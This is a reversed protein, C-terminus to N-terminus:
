AASGSGTRIQSDDIALAAGDWRVVAGLKASLTEIASELADEQGRDSAGAHLELLLNLATRNGHAVIAATGDYQVNPRKSRVLQAALTLPILPRRRRVEKVASGMTQGFDDDQDYRPNDPDEIALVTRDLCEQARESGLRAAVTLIRMRQTDSLDDRKSWTDLLQAWRPTAAHPPTDLLGGSGLFDMQYAYLMGFEASRAFADAEDATTVRAGILEAAREALARGPHHGFLSVAEQAILLPLTQLQEILATFARHDGHRAAHLMAVQVIEAPVASDRRCRDIVRDRTDAHPFIQTLNGALHLRYGEPISSDGLLELFLGEPDAALSVVGTAHWPRGKDNRLIERLIALEGPTLPRGALRFCNLRIDFPLRADRAAELVREPAVSGPAFHRLLGDLGSLEDETIDENDLVHMIREFAEHGAASIAPALSHYYRFRGIPRLLLRDLVSLTLAHNKARVIIEGGGHNLLRPDHLTQHLAPSIPDAFGDLILQGVRERARLHAHSWYAVLRDGVETRLASDIAAGNAICRAVLRVGTSFADDPRALIERMIPAPNRHLELAFQLVQAWPRHIADDIRAPLTGAAHEVLYAAALYEQVIPFPFQLRISSQRRLVGYNALAALVPEVNSPDPALATVIARVERESAGIEGRELREFALRASVARLLEPSVPTGGIPKHEHPAFFTRLYREILETRSSPLAESGGVTAIMLALFLPIRALRKLDPYSDLRRVLSWGDIEPCRTNMVVAFRVIEADSLPLIELVPTDNAGSLVAPDRVTLLWPVHPYRASFTRLRELLPARQPGPVEDLGDLLLALLGHEALRRWDVRVDFARNVHDALFETISASSAALSALPVFVPTVPDTALRGALASLLVSKGHGPGAVLMCRHLQESPFAGLDIVSQQPDAVDRPPLEDEFDTREVREWNRVRPWVFMEAAPGSLGTGPIEIWAQQAVTDRYAQIGWEAPETVLISHEQALRRRLNPARFRARVRANGGVMDRLISLLTSPSTGGRDVRRRALEQIIENDPLVRVDIRRVLEFLTESDEAGDGIRAFLAEQSGTLRSALEASDISTAARDCLDRLDRVTKGHEAVVITVHDDWRNALTAVQAKLRAWMTIWADDGTRLDLKATLYHRHGDAYGVVIDDIESPAEVRVDVVRERPQAPDLQLLEALYLAAVGNQYFIGAQTSTGGAETM